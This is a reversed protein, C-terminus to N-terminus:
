LNEPRVKTHALLALICSMDKLKPASVTQNTTVWCKGKNVQSGFPGQCSVVAEDYM